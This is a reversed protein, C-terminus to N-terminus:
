QFAVYMSGLALMSAVYPNGLAIFFSGLPWSPPVYTEM